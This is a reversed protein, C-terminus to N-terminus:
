YEKSMSLLLFNNCFLLLYHVKNLWPAGEAIQEGLHEQCVTSLYFFEINVISFQM